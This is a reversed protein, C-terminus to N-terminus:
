SYTERGETMDKKKREKIGGERRSERREVRRGGKM